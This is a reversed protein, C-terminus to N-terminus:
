DKNRLAERVNMLYEIAAVINAADQAQGPAITQTELILNERAVALDQMNISM